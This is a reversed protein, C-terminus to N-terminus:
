PSPSALVVRRARRVAPLMAAVILSLFLWLRPLPM